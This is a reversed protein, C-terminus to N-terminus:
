ERHSPHQDGADKQERDDKRRVRCGCAPVVDGPPPLEAGEQVVPRAVDDDGIVAGEHGTACLASEGTELGRGLVSGLAGGRENPRVPAVAREPPRPLEAWGVVVPGGRDRSVGGPDVHTAARDPREGVLLVFTPVIGEDPLEGEGPVDQPGPLESAILVVQDGADGDRVATEEDDSLRV